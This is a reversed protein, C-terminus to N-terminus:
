PTLRVKSARRQRWDLISRRLFQVFGWATAAFMLPGFWWGFRTFITHAMSKGIPVATRATQQFPLPNTSTGGPFAAFTPGSVAAVLVACGNEAARMQFMRQHQRYQKAGWAQMNCTPFVLFDAGRSRMRQSFRQFSGDYCIGFGMRLPTTPSSQSSADAVPIVVVDNAPWGDNMLQVPRNKVAKGVLTGSTDLYFATNWFGQERPKGVPVDLAGFVIGWQSHAADDRARDLFGKANARFPDDFYSGEPWVVLSCDSNPAPASPSDEIMEQERMQRLQATGLSPGHWPRPPVLSAAPIILLTISLVAAPSRTWGNSRWARLAGFMIGAWLVMIFSVGYVGISSAFVTGLRNRQSYGLALWSFCLPALEGRFYELGTWAAAIWIYGALRRPAPFAGALFGWLGYYAAMLMWLSLSLAHFITWMWSLLFASVCFMGAGILEFRRRAKLGHLAAIWFLPVFWAAPACEIPPFAAAYCLAGAALLTIRSSRNM